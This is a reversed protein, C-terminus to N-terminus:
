EDDLIIGVQRTLQLQGEAVGAVGHVMGSVALILPVTEAALTAM